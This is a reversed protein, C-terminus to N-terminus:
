IKKELRLEDEGEELDFEGSKKIGKIIAGLFREELCGFNKGFFFIMETTEEM